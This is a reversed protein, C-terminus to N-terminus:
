ESVINLKQTYDGIDELRVNGAPTPEIPAIPLNMVTGNFEISELRQKELTTGLKIFFPFLDEGVAISKDEIMEDWTLRKGPTDAWRTSQVWRWRPYWTTGYRDDLKQWIYWVKYWYTGHGWVERGAENEYHISLDMETLVGERGFVRRNSERNPENLLRSDYLANIKGQFWGAHAEGLNTIPAIGAIEGKTNRPGAMTHALEHAFISLIGFCDLSIIGNERPRFANVAWGGGGGAALVLYMPEESPRSPLWQEIKKMAFPVDERVCKLLDERQNAAYYFVIQGFQQELEPYIAGGGGMTVPFSASGGVPEKGQSVEQLVQAVFNRVRERKEDADRRNYKFISPNGILAVYGKEHKAISTISNGADGKLLSKQNEGEIVAFKADQYTDTEHGFTLGFRRALKNISWVNMIDANQPTIMIVLGGGNAVFQELANIEADTYEQANPDNQETIVINFEPNDWWAFPFIRNESDYYARIRSQGGKELVANLSAMSGVARFGMRQLNSPLDWMNVFTCQHALDILVNIGNDNALTLDPWPFKRTMEIPLTRGSHWYDLITESSLDIVQKNENCSVFTMAVFFVFFLSKMFKIMSNLHKNNLLKNFQLTLIKKTYFRSILV